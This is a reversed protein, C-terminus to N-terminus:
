PAHERRLLEGAEAKVQAIFQAPSLDALTKPDLDDCLHAWAQLDAPHALAEWLEYMKFCGSSADIEGSLIEHATAKATERFCSESELWEYGLEDFSARLLPEAESWNTPEQLAAL